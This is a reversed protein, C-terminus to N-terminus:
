APILLWKFRKKGARHYVGIVKKNNHPIICKGTDGTRIEKGDIVIPIDVFSNRMETLTNELELREPSDPLYELIKENEFNIEKLIKNNM